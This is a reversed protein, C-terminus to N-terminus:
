STPPANLRALAAAPTLATVVGALRTLHENDRSILDCRYAQAVAAYVADAGRLERDAALKAALSALRATLPIATLFDLRMIEDAFEAALRPDHRIRSVAGAVEVHLLTPVIVPAEILALHDLLARSDAHGKESSILGNVWVSTDITYM